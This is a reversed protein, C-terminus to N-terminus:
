LGKWKMHTTQCVFREWTYLLTKLTAGKKFQVCWIINFTNQKKKYPAFNMVCRLFVITAIRTLSQSIQTVRLTDYLYHVYISKENPYYKYITIVVQSLSTKALATVTNEAKMIQLKPSRLEMKNFSTCRGATNQDTGGFIYEKQTSTEKNSAPTILFLPSPSTLPVFGERKWTCNKYFDWPFDHLKHTM